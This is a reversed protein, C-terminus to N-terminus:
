CPFNMYVVTGKLLGTQAAFIAASVGMGHLCLVRFTM